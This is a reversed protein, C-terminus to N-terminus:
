VIDKAITFIVGDGPLIWGNFEVRVGNTNKYPIIKLKKEDMFGFGFGNVRYPAYNKLMFNSSFRKCPATIRHQYHIDTIPVLSEAVLEISCSDKIEISFHGSIDVEYSPASSPPNQCREVFLKINKDITQNGITVRCKNIKYLDIDNVDEIPTMYAGVPVNKVKVESTPNVITFLRTIVKKMYNKDEDIICEVDNIYEEYYCENLFNCIEDEVVYFFSTPDNTGFYLRRDVNSKLGKLRPEDLDNIFDDTAMMKRLSDVLTRGYHTLEMFIAVSGVIFVAIFFEKFFDLFIGSLLSFDFNHEYLSIFFLGVLSTFTLPNCFIFFTAIFGRRPFINTSSTIPTKPSTLM